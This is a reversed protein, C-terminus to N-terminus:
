IYVQHLCSITVIGYKVEVAQKIYVSPSFAYDGDDHKCTYVIFGYKVEMTKSADLTCKICAILHTVIGYKGDEVAQMLHIYVVLLALM